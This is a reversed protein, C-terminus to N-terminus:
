GVRTLALRHQAIANCEWLPAALAGARVLSPSWMVQQEAMFNWKLIKRQITIKILKTIIDRPTTKEMIKQNTQKNATSNISHRFNVAKVFSPFIRMMIKGDLTEQIKKEWGRVRARRAWKNLSELRMHPKVPQGPPLSDAQWNLICLLHQNNSGPDPLDGPSPCALGSWSEGHSFGM